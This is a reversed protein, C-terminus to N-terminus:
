TTTVRETVKASTDTLTQTVSRKVVESAQAVQRTAQTMRGSAITDSMWGALGSAALALATWILALVIFVIWIINKM